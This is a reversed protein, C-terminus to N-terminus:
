SLHAGILALLALLLTAVAVALTYSSVRNAHLESRAARCISCRGEAVPHACNACVLHEASVDDRERTVGGAHGRDPGAFV